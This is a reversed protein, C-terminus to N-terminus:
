RALLQSLMFTGGDLVSQNARPAGTAQDYSPLAQNANRERAYTKLELRIPDTLAALKVRQGEITNSDYIAGSPNTVM